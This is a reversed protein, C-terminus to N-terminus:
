MVACYGSDPEYPEVDRLGLSGPFSLDPAEVHQIPEGQSNEIRM